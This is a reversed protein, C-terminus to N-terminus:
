KAILYVGFMIVGIGVWRTLTITEQFVFLAVIMGAVYALSQFPYAVSLPMRSLIYFWLITAGGFLALGSIVHWSSALKLLQFGGAKQIGLKFLTQGSVMLVINAILLMYNVAKSTLM